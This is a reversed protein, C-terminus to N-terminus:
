APLVSLAEGERREMEFVGHKGALGRLEVERGNEFRIAGASETLEKMLRSALIPGGRALDSIRAALAVSRGYFDGADGFADGVHLGMRVHLSERPHAENYVALGKQIHDNLVEMWRLDGLREMMTSSGEIDTFLITVTGDPEAHRRLEPLGGDAGSAVVDTVLEDLAVM